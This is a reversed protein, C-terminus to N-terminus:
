GTFQIPDFKDASPLHLDDHDHILKALSRTFLNDYTVENGPIIFAQNPQRNVYTVCHSQLNKNDADQGNKITLWENKMQVWLSIMDKLIRKCDDARSSVTWFFVPIQLAINIEYPDNFFGPFANIAYQAHIGGAICYRAKGDVVMRLAEDPSRVPFMACEFQEEGKDTGVEKKCWASLVSVYDSNSVVAISPEVMESIDPKVPYPLRSLFYYKKYTFAKESRFLLRNDLLRHSGKIQETISDNYFAVDIQNTLLATGVDRWPIDIIELNIAFDNAYHEMLYVLVGEAFPMGNIRITRHMRHKDPRLVDDDHKHRNWYAQRVDSIDDFKIPNILTSTSQTILAKALENLICDAVQPGISERKAYHSVLHKLEDILDKKKDGRGDSGDAALTCLEQLFGSIKKKIDGDTLRDCNQSIYPSLLQIVRGSPDAINCPNITSLAEVVSDRIQECSM